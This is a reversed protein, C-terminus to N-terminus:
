TISCYFWLPLIHLLKSLLGGEKIRKKVITDATAADSHSGIWYRGNQMINIQWLDPQMQSCYKMMM